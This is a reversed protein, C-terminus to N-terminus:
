KDGLDLDQERGDDYWDCRTGCDLCKCVFGPREGMGLACVRYDREPNLGQEVVAIAPWREGLHICSENGQEALPRSYLDFQGSEGFPTSVNGTLPSPLRKKVEESQEIRLHARRLFERMTAECEFCPCPLFHPIM